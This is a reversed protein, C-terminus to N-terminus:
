VVCSFSSSGVDLRIGKGEEKRAGYAYRCTFFIKTRKETKVEEATPASLIGRSVLSRLALIGTEIRDLESPSFVDQHQYVGVNTLGPSFCYSIENGQLRQIVNKECVSALGEEKLDMVSTGDSTANWLGSPFPACYEKMCAHWAHIWSYLRHRGKGDLQGWCGREVMVDCRLPYGTLKVGEKPKPHSVSPKDNKKVSFVVLIDGYERPQRIAEVRGKACDFAIAVIGGVNKKLIRQLTGLKAEQYLKSHIVREISNGKILLLNCQPSPLRVRDVPDRTSFDEYYWRPGVPFVSESGGDRSFLVIFGKRKNCYFTVAELLALINRRVPDFEVSTTAWNSNMLKTLSEIKELAFRKIFVPVAREFRNVGNFRGVWQPLKKRASITDHYASIHWILNCLTRFFEDASKSDSQRFKFAPAMDPIMQRLENQLM